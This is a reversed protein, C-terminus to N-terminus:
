DTFDAAVSNYCDANDADIHISIGESRESHRAVFWAADIGAQRLPNPPNVLSLGLFGMRDTCGTAQPILCDAHDGRSAVYPQRDSQGVHFMECMM